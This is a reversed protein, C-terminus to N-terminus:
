EIWVFNIIMEHCGIDSIHDVKYGLEEMSQRQHTELSSTWVDVIRFDYSWVYKTDGTDDKFIKAIQAKVHAPVLGSPLPECIHLGGYEEFESNSVVRHVPEFQYSGMDWEFLTSKAVVKPWHERQHSEM